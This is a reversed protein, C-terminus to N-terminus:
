GSPITPGPHSEALPDAGLWDDIAAFDPRMAPRPGTAAEIAAALVHDEGTSRAMVEGALHGWALVDLPAFAPAAAGLFSAAGFDGLAAEGAVGDWLVNHAYLDGHLLGRAHLHAGARAVGHALRRAAAPPLALDPAYVDRTCRAADPPGALTRWSAPLLRLVLAAQGSPHDDVTALGGLLNPHAGAALCAAIEHAPLGDSTVEGRFLKLAVPLAAGTGDRWVARHVRGSAGEGLLFETRLDAARARRAAVRPPAIGPNGAVALWALRPMLPLFPPLAEFRNASLRLLELAPAAELAAPLAALRNGALLLKALAPRAGLSDPLSAIRNDTLTLWRLGPPLAEAPVTELGCGRFGVQSLSACAGLVPPLVDFRNGSCFLVRLRHMAAFGDPLVRLANGALDLTELTGALGFVEDPVAELGLGALSLHRAGALAGRRLALLTDAAGTVSM